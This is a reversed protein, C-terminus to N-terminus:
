YRYLNRLSQDVNLLRKSIVFM